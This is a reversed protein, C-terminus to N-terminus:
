SREDNGTEKTRHGDRHDNRHDDRAADGGRNNGGHNGRHADGDTGGDIGADTDADREGIGEAVAVWEADDGAWSGLYELFEPEPVTQEAGATGALLAATFWLAAHREAM